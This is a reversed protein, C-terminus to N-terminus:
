DDPKWKKIEELLPLLKKYLEPNFTRQPIQGNVMTWEIQSARCLRTLYTYPNNNTFYFMDRELPPIKISILDANKGVEISGIRDDLHLAKAGGKTAMYVLDYESIATSNKYNTCILAFLPRLQSLIDLRDNTMPGDAGIGVAIGAKLLEPVPAVSLGISCNCFGNYAVGIKRKALIEIEKKTLYVCHALTIKSHTFFGLKELYELPSLSTKVRSFYFSNFDTRKKIDVEELTENTHMLIPIDYKKALEVCHELYNDSVTYPAHPAIAPIIFPDDHWNKIFNKTYEIASDATRNTPSPVQSLITEGIVGRIGCESFAKAIDESHYYMEASTTVGYRILENLGLLTGLYVAQSRSCFKRELPLMYNFLIQKFPIGGPMKGAYISMPIHGHTNIFGPMLLHDSFKYTNATKYRAGINNRSDIAVIKGENVAVAYNLHMEMDNEAMTLLYPAYIISDVVRKNKPENTQSDPTKM